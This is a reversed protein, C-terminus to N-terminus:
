TTAITAAVLLVINGREHEPHLFSSVLFSSTSFHFKKQKKM